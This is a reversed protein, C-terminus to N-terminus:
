PEPKGPPLNQFFGGTKSLDHREGECFVTFFLASYVQENGGALGRGSFLSFVEPKEVKQIWKKPKCRTKKKDSIHPPGSATKQSKPGTKPRM